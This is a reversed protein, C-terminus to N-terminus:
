GRTWNKKSVRKQTPTKTKKTPAAEKSPSTELLSTHSENMIEEAREEFKEMESRIEEIARWEEPSFNNPDESFAKLQEKTMGTAQYLEEAKHNLDALTHEMKKVLGNIDAPDKIQGVDQTERLIELVEHFIDAEAAKKNKEAMSGGIYLM